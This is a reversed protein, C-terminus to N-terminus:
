GREGGPQWARADHLAARITQDMDLYRYSGLRGGFHVNPLARALEQYRALLAQNKEDNVPYYPDRGPRWEEPYERTLLTEQTPTNLFHKHEIVRTWPVSASTYNVVARGQADSVPLWEDEFRVTRYELAGLQCGFFGDITGTYLINAAIDPQSRILEAYDTNLRVECGELMRQCLADYGEVPIGQYKDSFYSEEESFRLPIRRIIFAPLERCPRGWQKETYGRILAEYVDPGVMALAQEELNRPASKRYPATQEALKARAQAENEVGWLARFTRIGFPLSFRREGNVAEVTHQYENFHGFRTIYAFVDEDSTHFIHPGYRHVCIGRVWEGHANGALHGRRDIVLCSMGRERMQQAFVCGYLGAGVILWDCRM